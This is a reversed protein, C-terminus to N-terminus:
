AIKDAEARSNTSSVRCKSSLMMKSLWHACKRNKYIKATKFRVAKVM